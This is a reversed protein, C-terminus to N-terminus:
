KKATPKATPKKVAPKVKGIKEIEKILTAKDLIGKMRTGDGASINAGIWDAIDNKNKNVHTSFIGSDMTPLVGKLEKLSSVMVGNDFTLPNVEKTTIDEKVKTPKKAGEAAKEKKAEAAEFKARASKAEEVSKKIEEESVLNLERKKPKKGLKEWEKELRPTLGELYIEVVSFSGTMVKDKVLKLEMKLDFTDVKEKELQEVQFEIDDV